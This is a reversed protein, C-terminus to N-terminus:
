TVMLRLPLLLITTLTSPLLLARELSGKELSLELFENGEKRSEMHITITSTSDLKMVMFFRQMKQCPTWHRWSSKERKKMVNKMSYRKKKRTLKCAKKAHYIGSKHCDFHIAADAESAEPNEKFFQILEARDIKRPERELPRKELSGTENKLKEWERLTNKGLGFMACVESRTYGNKLAALARERMITPYAM